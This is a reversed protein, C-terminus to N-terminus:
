SRAVAQAIRNTLAQRDSKSNFWFFVKGARTDIRIAYKGEHEVAVYASTVAPLLAEPPLHIEGSFQLKMKEV